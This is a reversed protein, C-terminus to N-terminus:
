KLTAAYVTLQKTPKMKFTNSRFVRNVYFTITKSWNRVNLLLTVTYANKFSANRDHKINQM